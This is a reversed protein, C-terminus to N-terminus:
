QASRISASESSVSSAETTASTTIRPTSDNVRKSLVKSGVISSTAVFVVMLIINLMSFTIIVNAQNKPNSSGRMIDM